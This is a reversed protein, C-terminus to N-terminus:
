VSCAFCILKLCRGGDGGNKIEGSRIPGSEDPPHHPMLINSLFFLRKFHSSEGSTGRVYKRLM